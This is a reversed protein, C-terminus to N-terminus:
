RHLISDVIDCYALFRREYMMMGSCVYLDGLVLLGRQIVSYLCLMSSGLGLAEELGVGVNCLTYAGLM